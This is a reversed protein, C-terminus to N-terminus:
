PSGVSAPSSTDRQPLDRISRQVRKARQWRLLALAVAAGVADTALDFLTPTRGPVFHQHFEDSLGYLVAILLAWLAPRRIGTQELARQLLVALVAYVALHGGISQLSTAGLGLDPLKSQASLFFIL